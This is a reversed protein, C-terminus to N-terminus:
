LHEETARGKIDPYTKLKFKSKTIEALTGRHIHLNETTHARM